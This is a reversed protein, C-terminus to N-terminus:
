QNLYQNYYWELLDDGVGEWDISTALDHAKHNLGTIVRRQLETATFMGINGKFYDDLVTLEEQTLEIKAM